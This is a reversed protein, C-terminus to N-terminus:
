RGHLDDSLIEFWRHHSEGACNLLHRDPTYAIPEDRAAGHLYRWQGPHVLVFSRGLDTGLGCHLTDALGVARQYSDADDDGFRQAFARGIRHVSVGDKM